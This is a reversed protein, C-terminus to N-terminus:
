SLAELKKCNSVKIDNFDDKYIIGKDFYFDSNPDYSHKSYVEAGFRKHFSVVSKNDSVTNTYIENLGIIEFGFKHILLASELSHLASGCCIWRGFEASNMVRDINYLSITGISNGNVDRIIFYYDNDRAIQEKIWQKQLEVDSNTKNLYKNYRGNLRLSLIFESDKENVSELYIFRGKIINDFNM